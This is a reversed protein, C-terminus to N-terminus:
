NRRNFYMFTLIVICLVVMLFYKWYTIWGIASNLAIPETSGTLTFGAWYYPLVETLQHNNLYNIKSQQLAQSKNTGDFVREYFNKLIEDGAYENINWNAALVSKAGNRFFVRAMNIIGEGNAFAGDNTKCADLIVLDALIQHGLLESMDIKRDYFALWPENDVVSIGAHTNIHITKYQDLEEWFNETTAEYALLIHNDTGTLMPKFIESAGDLAPLLTDPFRLPAIGFIGKNAMSGNEGLIKSLSMSHQYSIECENVLYSEKTPKDVATILTEFPVRFLFDDPVVLLKRGKINRRMKKSPFLQTFMNFSLQKFESLQKKSMVPKQIFEQLQLFERELLAKDEIRFLTASEDNVFIGFAEQDGVIYEVLIQNKDTAIKSVHALNSINEEIRITKFSPFVSNVSDIYYQSTKTLNKFAKAVSTDSPNLRYQNDLLNLRYNFSYVKKIIADPIAKGKKSQLDRIKEQLLLAKNKEMYYFAEESQELYYCVKVSLLYSNVGRNIWFLKANDSVSRYRIVSILEDVLKLVSSAQNLYEKRATEEYHRVLFTAMDSLFVLLDDENGSDLIESITLQKISNIQDNYILTGLSSFYYAIRQEHADTQLYYAKNGYALGLSEHHNSEAIIKDFLDHAKVYAGKACHILAVNNLMTYYSASDQISKYYKLAESYKDYAEDYKEFSDFIVALNNSREYYSKDKEIKDDITLIREESHIALNLDAESNSRHDISEYKSALVSILETIILIESESDALIKSNALGLNLEQIAQYFDGERKFVRSLGIYASALRDKTRRDNIMEQYTSKESEALGAYRYFFALNTKSKNIDSIPKIQKEKQQIAAKTLTLANSYDKQRFYLKGMEHYVESSDVSGQKLLSDLADIREQYSFNSSKAIQFIVENSSQRGILGSSICIAALTLVIFKNLLSKLLASSECLVM